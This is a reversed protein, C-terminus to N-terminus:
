VIKLCEKFSNSKTPELKLPRRSGRPTVKVADLEIEGDYQRRLRSSLISQQNKKLALNQM